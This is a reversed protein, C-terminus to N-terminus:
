YFSNFPCLISYWQRHTQSISEVLRVPIRRWKLCDDCRVWANDPFLNQEMVGSSPMDLNTVEEATTDNGADTKGNDDVTHNCCCNMDSCFAEQGKTYCFSIDLEM